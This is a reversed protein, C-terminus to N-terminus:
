PRKRELLEKVRLMPVRVGCDCDMSHTRAEHVCRADHRVFPEAARLADLLNDRDSATMMPTEGKIECYAKLTRAGGRAEECADNCARLAALAADREVRLKKVANLARDAEEKATALPDNGAVIYVASLQTIVADARDETRWEGDRAEEYAKNCTRLAACLVRISAEAQTELQELGAEDLKWLTPRKEESM